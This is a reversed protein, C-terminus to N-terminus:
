LVEDLLADLLQLHRAPRLQACATELHHLDQAEHQLLVHQVRPVDHAGVLVEEGGEDGEHLLERHVVEEVVLDELDEFEGEGLGFGGGEVGGDEGVVQQGGEDRLLSGLVPADACASGGVAVALPVDRM